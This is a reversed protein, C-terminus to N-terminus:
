GNAIAKITDIAEDVGLIQLRGAKYDERGQRIAQATVQNPTIPTQNPSDFSLPLSGTDAVQKLILRMFQAPTMGFSQIVDFSQKKLTDDLKLSFNTAM